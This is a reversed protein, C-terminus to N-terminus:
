DRFEESPIGKVSVFHLHRICSLERLSFFSFSVFAFLSVSPDILLVSQWTAFDKEERGFEFRDITLFGSANSTITM